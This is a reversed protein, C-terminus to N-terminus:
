SLDLMLEDSFKIFGLSNALKTSAINDKSTSWMPCINNDVLHKILATCAMKAYGKGRYEALTNIGIEQTEEAMFPMSPADTASVLKGDVFVGYCFSKSVIKLFYEKLWAKDKNSPNCKKFFDLFAGYDCQKLQQAKDTKQMPSKGYIEFINKSVDEISAKEQISYRLDGIKDKVRDGYSIIIYKNNYFCILDSKFSYGVQLTNRKKSYVFNIAQQMNSVDKVDLWQSYYKEIISRFNLPKM